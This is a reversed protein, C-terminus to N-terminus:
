NKTNNASNQHTRFSFEAEQCFQTTYDYIGGSFHEEFRYKAKEYIM